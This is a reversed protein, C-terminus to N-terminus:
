RYKRKTWEVTQKNEFVCVCIYSTGMCLYRGKESSIIDKVISMTIAKHLQNRKKQIYPFVSGRTTRAFIHIGNHM